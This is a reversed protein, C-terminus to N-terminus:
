ALNIVKVDLLIVSHMLSFSFFSLTCLSLTEFTCLGSTMQKRISTVMIYAGTKTTYFKRSQFFHSGLLMQM